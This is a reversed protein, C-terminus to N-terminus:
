RSTRATAGPEGAPVAGSGDGLCEFTLRRLDDCLSLMTSAHTREVESPPHEPDDLLRALSAQLTDIPRCIERSLVSSIEVLRSSAVPQNM